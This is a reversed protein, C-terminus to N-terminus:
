RDSTDKPCNTPTQLSITLIRLLVSTPDGRIQEPALTEREDSIELQDSLLVRRDRGIL